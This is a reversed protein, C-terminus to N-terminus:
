YTMLWDRLATIRMKGVYLCEFAKDTTGTVTRELHPIKRMHKRKSKLIRLRSVTCHIM